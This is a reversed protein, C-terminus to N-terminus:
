SRLRRRRQLLRLAGVALFPEIGLLGCSPFSIPTADITFSLAEQSQCGEPNVITAPKVGAFIAPVTARYAGATFTIPAQSGGLDLRASPSIATGIVEVSEGAKASIPLLSALTTTQGGVCQHDCSDGTGDADVDSQSANAKAVCNDCVNGRADADTDQQGSNSVEACNDLGDLVGDEDRDIGARQGSATATFGPPVCTYTLEQGATKALNRLATDTYTTNRDSRFAGNALRVWGRAGADAGTLVNGKVVLECEKANAVLGGTTNVM